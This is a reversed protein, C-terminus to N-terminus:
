EVFNRILLESIKGRKEANSNIMRHAQIRQIDFNEYLKGFFDDNTDSNSLMIKCNKQSIKRVFDALKIQAEDKFEFGAYTTFSSSKSIPKYPPDFYVFTKSNVFTECNEYSGQRIEVKQLLNALLYLNQEDFLKPNEYRGHPVNFEGKSNLRFLGNFCTKNLFIFQAAREIGLDSNQQYDFNIRNQNFNKKIQEFIAKKEEINALLYDKKYFDLQLILAKTQFKITQYTLILDANLDFIYAKQINFHQLVYFLLSGGGVFPEIYTEIKGEFLEKPFFQSMQPILKTKGGAWKLFPKAYTSNEFM